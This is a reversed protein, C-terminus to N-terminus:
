LVHMPGTLCNKAYFQLKKKKDMLKLMHKPHEDLRYKQTGVINTKTSFYSFYNETVCEKKM